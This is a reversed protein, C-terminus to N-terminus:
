PTLTHRWCKNNVIKSIHSSCVRYKITLTRNRFPRIFEKGYKSVCIRDNGVSRVRGLNSVQYLGEYGVVDKWIEMNPFTILRAGWVALAM